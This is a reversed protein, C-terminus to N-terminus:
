HKEYMDCPKYGDGEKETHPSSIRERTYGEPFGGCPEEEVEWGMLM